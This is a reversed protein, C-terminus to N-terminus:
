IFESVFFISFPRNLTNLQVHTWLGKSTIMIISDKHMLKDSSDDDDEDLFNCSKFKSNFSSELKWLLGWSSKFTLKNTEKFNIRNINIFNLKFKFYFIHLKM